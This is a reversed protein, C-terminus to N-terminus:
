CRSRRRPRTSRATASATSTTSSRASCTRHRRGRGHRRHRDHRRRGRRPLARRALRPRRRRAAPGQADLLKVQGEVGVEPLLLHRQYRNRQDPPRPRGADEVDRGEDKWPRLWRGDVRRRHLRAGALTKAAFALARWRRLLRRRAHRPRAVRGEVQSELHGRPIHIAGPFAGQDYEDPERVDLVIAGPLSRM